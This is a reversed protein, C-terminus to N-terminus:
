EEDDTGKVAVDDGATEPTKKIINKDELTSRFAPVYKEVIRGIVSEEGFVRNLYGHPIMNMCLFFILVLISMRLVGAFVGALKDFSEAFVVRVLRKILMRLVLMFLLALIVTVIFALANAAQEGLRTNNYIWGGVSARMWVGAFFALVAGILRALEGSFGRFYGQIGGVAMLLIAIIDVLSLSASIDSM